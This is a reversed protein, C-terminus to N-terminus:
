ARRRKHARGAPGWWCCVASRDAGWPCAFREANGARARQHHGLRSPAGGGARPERAQRRHGLRRCARAARATRPTLRSSRLGVSASLASIGTTVGSVALSVREALCEGGERDTEPALVNFEDGGVRALHGARATDLRDGGGGRAAARGRGPPRLPREGGQLRRSRARDGRPQAAPAHPARDRLAAAGRVRPPQRRRHAPRAHATARLARREREFEEQLVRVVAVSGGVVALILLLPPVSGRAGLIGAITVASAPLAARAASPAWAAAMLAFPVSLWLGEGGGAVFVLLASCGCVAVGRILPHGRAVWGTNRAPRVFEYYALVRPWVQPLSGTLTCRAIPEGREDNDVPMQIHAVVRYDSGCFTPRARGFGLVVAERGAVRPRWYRMTVHASAVPPLGHGLVILAGAEGYNNAVVVDAGRSVSEVTRALRHWGLEDAFDSRADMIGASNAAKVPLVPLGIPLLVVLLLVFATGAVRLRRPTAWRDVALAGAALAFLMVPLAYYSKGGLVFYALVVGIM